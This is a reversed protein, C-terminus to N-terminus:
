IDGERSGSICLTVICKSTSIRPKPINIFDKTIKTGSALTYIIRAEESEQIGGLGVEEYGMGM